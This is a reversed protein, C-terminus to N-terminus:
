CPKTRTNNTNNNTTSTSSSSSSSYPSYIHGNVLGNVRRSNSESSRSSGRSDDSPLNAGGGMLALPSSCGSFRHGNHLDELMMCEVPSGSGSGSGAGAGEVLSCPGRSAGAGRAWSSSSSSAGRTSNSPSHQAAAAQGGSAQPSKHHHHHHNPDEAAMFPVRSEERSDMGTFSVNDIDDDDDGSFGQGGTAETPSQDLEAMHSALATTRAEDAGEKDGHSEESFFYSVDQFQPDLDPVLEEIISMFTPRHKARYQWCKEMLSWLKPPCGPPQVMVKGDGVFKVVQENSLGQYPQAALTAMEWMVIGYSWVDSMTTFVGYILSEPPMWRVPLLGKNGKRYYDTEYIDRTMGFDGIKVVKKESVMCNRAALDRHVFKKASLYAMGDAIEGAMQLIEGITPPDGMNDEEDPRHMRLYNKLDGCAMLEMIVLAPQGESVVGILKVVHYCKFTKMTTAEKLFNMREQFGANDNVTKIAVNYESYGDVLDYAKGSYVMGFSGQGLEKLLEIKDRPVEWNDIVYMEDSAMYGPNQSIVTMEQNNYRNKAILWVIIVISMLVVASSIIGVAILAANLPSDTEERPPIVFHMLPTYSGNGALSVAALKFTYNGPDINVLRHGGLQRYKKQSVCITLFEHDQNARRYRILYKIILGNPQRPADWRILVDGTSNAVLKVSVTTANINDAKELPKTRAVTIARNSCLKEGTKPDTEQCALVEINYEQFHGLNTLIIKTDYITLHLYTNEQTQNSASAGSTANAAASAATSTAGAATNANTTTATPTPSSSTSSSVRNNARPSYKNNNNNNNRANNSQRKSRALRDLSYKNDMLDPLADMRKCYVHDHLYNEFEIEIQQEREEEKLQEKSKPCNCCHQGGSEAGRNPDEEKPTKKEKAATIPNKCYDRQDFPEQDLVQLQWYVYYHTVNGNPVKPPTWTVLLEGPQEAVARLNTPSTPYDPSTTFIHIDSIAQSTATSLMVAEVYTAYKTWPKLNPILAVNMPVLDDPEEELTKWINESCADRGQYISVIDSTVERYNIIYTLIQREDSSQVNPWQLIVVNRLIRPISLDLKTVTCPILDGNMNPSVDLDTTTNTLGLHSVLDRIKHLCLKRNGHFKVKGKRVKLKKTVEESFLEQLNSNDRVVLSAKSADENEGGIVRLSKFFHLSLLAYSRVIKIYHTVERIEGLSEELELGINSGGIIHIEM